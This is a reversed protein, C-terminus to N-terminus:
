NKSFLELVNSSGSGAALGGGAVFIRSEFLVPDIGQRATPMDGDQKWTQLVPDFVDVRKFAGNITESSPTDTEGGIVFFKGGRYVARGAGGRAVPLPAITSGVDLSSQWTGTGPNYVFVDAFGPGVWNGGRRGGFIYFREGDTGASANNRGWGNPLAGLTLWTNFVPDYRAFNEVTVSGVIGGAAYIYGDIVATSVAGGAWPMPAGTSWTGAVPDYIQVRGESGSGIGGILYLKGGLVEASHDAGPFPRVGAAFSWTGTRLNYVGTRTDFDGVLYLKDGIVASSTDGVSMPADVGTEWFGPENGKGLLYRFAKSLVDQKSGVTVVVDLLKTTPSAKSPLVGVIRESTVSTLVAPKGGIRVSTNALNGFGVGSIEFRGGGSAPARWPFIDQVVLGTAALDNPELVHIAQNFHNLSLIVGGPGIAASLGGTWLSIQLVKTVSRGDPSLVVRYPTNAYKQTILNGRLQGGFTDARYEQVGNMSSAVEALPKKYAEPLEADAPARYHNERDDYRGRNRNPSGYYNGPEVLLVEDSGYPDATETAAGTSAPGFGFNPGNDTVYVRGNTHLALDFANRIGPAHVEVHTGPALDVVGGFVQNNNVQGSGTEVYSLAGNFDPRSTLAKIMSASLPSEPLDGSNPHPVGANTQSGINILLDGNNDFVLGNVAHDHNSTPLKTILASPVDFNPGTLVSVQGPYDSYTGPLIESGGDAFLENHSVYVKIPQVGDYPNFALGMIEHNSLNSVGPFYEVLTATYAEDFTVRALQGNRLGVYFLGDPGFAGCTPMGTLIVQSTQTFNVPVPGNDDYDFQRLNSLGNPTQVTVDITGSGAPSLFHLETPTISTFDSQDLDIAGWHVVVQSAPFFGIGEIIIDNGGLSTGETPMSNITPPIVTEDHTLWENPVGTAPGGGVTMAVELPLDPLNQVAFEARVEHTGIGLVRVGTWPSGDVWLSSAAGGMIPFDYTEATPVDIEATLRVVADAVLESSGISGTDIVSLDDLVEVHVPKGLPGGLAAIPNGGSFDFFEAMVGPVADSSVVRVSIGSRLSQSPQNSDYIELEVLNEGIPVTFPVTPGAAVFQSNVFWDYGVLTKGPEHTHSTSGDFTTTEDGNGDFDILLSPADIVVHLYPHGQHGGLGQVEIGDDGFNGSLQVRAFELAETQPTFEVSMARTEMPALVSSQAFLQDTTSGAYTQGDWTVKFGTADTGYGLQIALSDITLDVGGFNTLYVTQTETGGALVAGFDIAGPDLDLLPVSLVEVGAVVAKDTFSILDLSLTGDTVVSLFSLEYATDHGAAAFVDIGAVALFEEHFVNFVRQGAAHHVPEVLHLTVEYYGAPIPLNLEFQTGEIYTQYISDDTTGAIPDPTSGSTTVTTGYSPEWTKGNGDVLGPGGLDIRIEDGPQGIGHGKLVSSVESGNVGFVVEIQAKALGKSTADFRVDLVRKGGPRLVFAGAPAGLMQFQAADAGVLRIESVTVPASSNNRVVAQKTSSSQGFEVAGFALTAPEIAISAVEVPGGLRATSSPHQAGRPGQPAGPIQPVTAGQQAAPLALLASLLISVSAFTM